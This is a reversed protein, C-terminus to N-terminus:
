DNALGLEVIHNEVPCKQIDNQWLCKLPQSMTYREPSRLWDLLLLRHTVVEAPITGYPLGECLTIRVLWGACDGPVQHGQRREDAADHATLVGLQRVDGRFHGVAAFGFAADFAKRPPAVVGVEQLLQVKQGIRIDQQTMEGQLRQYEDHIATAYAAPTGRQHDMDDLFTAGQRQGPPHAVGRLPMKGFFAMDGQDVEDAPQELPPVPPTAPRHPMHHCLAGAFGAAPLSTRRMDCLWSCQLSM